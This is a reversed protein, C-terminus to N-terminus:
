NWRWTTMTNKWLYFFVALYVIDAWNDWLLYCTNLSFIINGILCSSVHHWWMNLLMCQSSIRRLYSMSTDRFLALLACCHAFSNLSFVAAILMSISFICVNIIHRRNLRIGINSVSIPITIVLYLLFVCTSCSIHCPLILLHLISDIENLWLYIM